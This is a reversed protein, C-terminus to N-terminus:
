IYLIFVLPCNKWFNKSIRSLFKGIFQANYSFKKIFISIFIFRTSSTSWKAAIKSSSPASVDGDLDLDTLTNDDSFSSCGPLFCSSENENDNDNDDNDNEFYNEDANQQVLSLPADQIEIYTKFAALVKPSLPLHRYNGTEAFYCSFNINKPM